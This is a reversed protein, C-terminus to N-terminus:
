EGFDEEEQPAYGFAIVVNLVTSCYTCTVTDGVHVKNSDLRYGTQCHPCRPNGSKPRDKEDKTELFEGTKGDRELALRFELETGCDPCPHLIGVEVEDARVRIVADCSPCSLTLDTM